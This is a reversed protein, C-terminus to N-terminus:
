SCTYHLGLDEDEEIDTREFVRKLVATLICFVVEWNCFLVLNLAASAHTM